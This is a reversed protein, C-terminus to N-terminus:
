RVDEPLTVREIPAFETGGTQYVVLAAFAYRLHDDTLYAGLKARDKASGWSDSPKVEIAILNFGTRRRHIIIDPTVDVSGQYERSETLAESARVRKTVREGEAGQRNFECDVHWGRFERDLYAALRHAICREGSRDQLLALDDSLVRELGVALAREVRPWDNWHAFLRQDAEIQELM